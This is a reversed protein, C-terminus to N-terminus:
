DVRRVPGEPGSEVAGLIGNALARDTIGIAATQHRGAVGGLQAGTLGDLVRVRRAKLLPRLKAASNEAADTAVLALGLTGKRAAARVQEVGVVVNRSRLGLGVLGLM